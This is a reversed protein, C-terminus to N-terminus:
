CWRDIEQLLHRIEAVTHWRTQKPSSQEEGEKPQEGLSARGHLVQRAKELLPRATAMAKELRVTRPCHGVALGDARTAQGLLHQFLELPPKARLSKRGRTKERGFRPFSGAGSHSSNSGRGTGVSAPASETGAGAGTGAGAETKVKQLHSRHLGDPLLLGAQEQFAFVVIM